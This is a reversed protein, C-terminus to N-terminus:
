TIFYRSSSWQDENNSHSRRMTCLDKRHFLVPILSKFRAPLWLISLFCPQGSSSWMAGKFGELSHRVTNDSCVPEGTQEGCGRLDTTPASLKSWMSASLCWLELRSDDGAGGPFRGWWGTSDLERYLRCSKWLLILCNIFCCSSFILTKKGADSAMTTPFLSYNEYLRQTEM